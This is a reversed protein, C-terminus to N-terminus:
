TLLFINVSILGALVLYPLGLYFDLGVNYINSMVIGFVASVIMQLVGIGAFLAGLVSLLFTHNLFLEYRKKM